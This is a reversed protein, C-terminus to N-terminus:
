KISNLFNVLAQNFREPQDLPTAHRSQEIVLLKAHPMQAVYAEKDAM